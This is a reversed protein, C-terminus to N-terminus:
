ETEVDFLDKLRDTFVDAVTDYEDDDNIEEYYTEGEEEYCKLIVLDGETEEPDMDGLDAPLMALYRGHDNEYEDIVEFTFEKGDEDSLTIIDPNYEKNADM